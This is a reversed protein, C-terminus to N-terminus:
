KSGKHLNYAIGILPVVDSKLGVDNIQVLANAYVLMHALPSFKIGGSFHVPTYTRVPTSILNFSTPVNTAAPPIPNFNLTSTTIYPANVIQNGLLDASLTLKRHVRFDTGVAFQLGGPLRTGASQQTTLVKSTGNWQYGIKFHPAFKARYEVLGYLSGGLAGSGLYNKSDGSPFRFTTGVAAAPRNREQGILLQKLGVTIDGLGSASGASSVSVNGPLTHDSYQNAQLNYEYAHFGKSVVSFSISNAPIIVSIDTTRTVGLTAISAYQDLQFHANNTSKGYFYVTPIVGAKTSFTYGVPLAGLSSGDLSSFNFHQYNFGLFLHRKGVTDPRDTLIPGLNDFPVPVESGKKKLSIVGVTASPVPLQTLQAAIAANIPVAADFAAQKAANAEAINGFTYQSLLSGSIPYVCVLKNSNTCDIQGFSYHAPVCALAVVLSLIKAKVPEGKRM